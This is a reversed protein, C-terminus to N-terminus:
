YMEFEYLKGECEIYQMDDKDTWETYLYYGADFADELIFDDSLTRGDDTEWDEAYETKLYSLLDKEYKIYMDEQELLYGASMGEGTVDCKRAWLSADKM